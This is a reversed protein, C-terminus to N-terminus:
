ARWSRRRRRDEADQLVDDDDQDRREIGVAMPQDDVPVPLLLARRVLAPRHRPQIVLVGAVVEIAVREHHVHRLVAVQRPEEVRLPMRLHEQRHVLHARVPRAEEHRRVDVRDIRVVIREDPPGRCQEAAGHRELQLAVARAADHRVRHVVVVPRAVLIRRREAVVDDAQQGFHRADLDRRRDVTAGALQAAADLPQGVVPRLDVKGIGPRASSQVSRSM